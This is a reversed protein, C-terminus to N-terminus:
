LGELIKKARIIKCQKIRDLLAAEGHVAAYGIFSAVAEERTRAFEENRDVRIGSVKDYCIWGKAFMYGEDTGSRVSSRCVVFTLSPASPVTFEYGPFNPRETM